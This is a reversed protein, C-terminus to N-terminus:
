IFFFNSKKCKIMFSAILSLFLILNNSGKTSTNTKGPKSQEKKEFTEGVFGINCSRIFLM